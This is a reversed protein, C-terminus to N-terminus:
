KFLASFQQALVKIHALDHSAFLSNIVAIMDAGQAILIPATDLSIGGIATIPITLSQKAKVLTALTAASAQPKTQSAFFRGFSIYNAGQQAAAVALDVSNHCSVGIIANTGLTQRAQDIRNDSQGLHVGDAKITTALELQDNIILPCQYQQCLQLLLQAEQQSNQFNKSKNRYQILAAGGALAAEVKALLIKTTPMLIEDTIAYLGKLPFNISM